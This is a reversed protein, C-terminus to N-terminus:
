KSNWAKLFEETGIPLRSRYEIEGPLWTRERGSFVVMLRMLLGGFLALSCGLVLFTEGQILLLLLPLLTGFLLFGVWFPLALSGRVWVKVANAERETTGTNKIWLYGIWLLGQVGLLLAGLWRIDFLTDGSTPPIVVGCLLHAALGTIFSSLLFLALMGPGTWFPRSKHRGLLAGPYTAVILGVLACLLAVIKKVAIWGSWPMSQIYFSAYILGLGIALTMNWAGATLIARPNLFVRWAQLPRGLELILFCAGLAIFLPALINGLLSTRGSGLSLEMVGAIFLMAGGMGAFFFDVALMWGWTEERRHRM